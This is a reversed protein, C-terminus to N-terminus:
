DDSEIVGVRNLYKIVKKTSYGNKSIDYRGTIVGDTYVVFYPYSSNNKFKNDIVSKDYDSVNMYLIVNRLNNEKITNIFKLEFKNIDESGLVSVYIIANKNEMIYDDIENFNIVDLYENLVETNLLSEKYSKHWLYFYYMVMLSFILVLLLYIYNKRPINRENKKFIM